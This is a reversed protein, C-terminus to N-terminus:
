LNYLVVYDPATSATVRQSLSIRFNELISALPLRLMWLWNLLILNGQFILFLDTTLCSWKQSNRCCVLQPHNQPFKSPLYNQKPLKLCETNYSILHSKSKMLLISTLYLLSLWDAWSQCYVPAYSCIISQPPPCTSILVKKTDYTCVHYFLTSHRKMTNIIYFMIYFLIDVNAYLYDRKDRWSVTCLFLCMLFMICITFHSLHSLPKNCLSRTEGTEIFSNKQLDMTVGYEIIDYKITSRECFKDLNLLDKGFTWSYAM